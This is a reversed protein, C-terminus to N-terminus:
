MFCDDSCVKLAAIAFNCLEISDKIRPDSNSVPSGAPVQAAVYGPRQYGSNSTPQPHNNQYQQQQQQQSFQQQHSPAPLIYPASTPPTPSSSFPPRPIDSPSVVQQPSPLPQLAAGVPASPIDYGGGAGNDDGISLDNMEQLLVILGFLL